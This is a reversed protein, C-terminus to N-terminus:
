REFCKVNQSFLQQLKITAVHDKQDKEQKGLSYRYMNYSVNMITDIWKNFM